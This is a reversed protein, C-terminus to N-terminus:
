LTQMKAKCPYVNSKPDHILDLLQFYSVNTVNIKSIGTGSRPKSTRMNASLVLQDTVKASVVPMCAYVFDGWIRAIAGKYDGIRDHAPQQCDVLAISKALQQPPPSLLFFFLFLLCFDKGVDKVAPRDLGVLLGRLAVEKLTTEPQGECSGSTQEVRVAAGMCAIMMSCVQLSVM